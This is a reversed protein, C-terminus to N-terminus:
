ANAQGPPPPLSSYRRSRAAVAPVPNSLIKLWQGRLLCPGGVKAVLTSLTGSLALVTAANAGESDLLNGITKM